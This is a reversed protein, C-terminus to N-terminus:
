YGVWTAVEKFFPDELYDLLYSHFFVILEVFNKELFASCHDYDM